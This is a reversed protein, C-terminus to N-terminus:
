HRTARVPRVSPRQGIGVASPARSASTPPPPTRKAAAVPRPPALARRISRLTPPRRHAKKFGGLLTLLKQYSVGARKKVEARFEADASIKKLFRSAKRTSRIEDEFELADIGAMYAELFRTSAEIAKKITPLKISQLAADIAELLTKITIDAAPKNARIHNKLIGFIYEIPNLEPHCKPIWLVEAGKATVVEEIIPRTNAFDNFENALKILEPKTKSAADAHGRELMIEVLGRKGLVQEVPVGNKLYVTKGQDTQAGGATKNM